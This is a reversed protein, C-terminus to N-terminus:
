KEMKKENIYLIYAYIEGRRGTTCTHKENKRNRERENKTYMNGEM